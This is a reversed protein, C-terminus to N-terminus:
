YFRGLVEGCARQLAPNKATTGFETMKIGVVNKFTANKELFEGMFEEHLMYDTLRLICLERAEAGHVLSMAKIFSGIDVCIRSKADAYRNDVPPVYAPVVYDDDYYDEGEEPYDDYGYRYSSWYRKGSSCNGCRCDGTICFGPSVGGFADDSVYKPRNTLPRQAKPADLDLTPRPTWPLEPEGQPSAPLLLVTPKSIAQAM